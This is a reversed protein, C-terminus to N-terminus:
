YLNCYDQLWRQEMQAKLVAVSDVTQALIIKADVFIVFPINILKTTAFYDNSVKNNIPIISNFNSQKIIISLDFGYINSQNLEDNQKYKNNSSGNFSLVITFSKLNTLYNIFATCISQSNNFYSYKVQNNETFKNKYVSLTYLYLQDNHKFQICVVFTTKNNNDAFQDNTAVTEIDFIITDYNFQISYNNDAIIKSFMRSSNLQPLGFLDSYDYRYDCFKIPNTKIITWSDNNIPITEYTNLLINKSKKIYYQEFEDIIVISKENFFIDVIKSLQIPNHNSQIIPLEQEILKTNLKCLCVSTALQESLYNIQTHQNEIVKDQKAIISVLETKEQKHLKKLQALEIQHTLKLENIWLNSLNDIMKNISKIVNDNINSSDLIMGQSYNITKQKITNQETVLNFSSSGFITSNMSNTWNKIIIPHTIVKMQKPNIFVELIKKDPISIKVKKLKTLKKNSKQKIIIEQDDEFTNIIKNIIQEVKQENNLQIM